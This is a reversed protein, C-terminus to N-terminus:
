LSRTELNPSDELMSFAKLCCSVKHEHGSSKREQASLSRLHSARRESAYSLRWSTRRATEDAISPLKVPRLAPTPPLEAPIVSDRPQIPTHFETDFAPLIQAPTSHRRLRDITELAPIDSISDSRPKSTMPTAPITIAKGERGAITFLANTSLKSPTRYKINAM